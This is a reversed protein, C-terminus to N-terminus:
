VGSPPPVPLDKYRSHEHLFDRWFAVVQEAVSRLDTWVPKPGRGTDILLCTSEFYDPEVYGPEVYDNGVATKGFRDKKFHKSGNAISRMDALLLNQRCVWGKLEEKAGIGLKDRAVTDNELWEGWIWEAMHYATLAFNIAVRASIPDKLLDEYEAVLKLYLDRCNKINFM